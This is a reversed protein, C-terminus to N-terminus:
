RAPLRRGPVFHTLKVTLTGFRDPTEVLLPLRDADNSVWATVPRAEKGGVVTLTGEIRRAARTAFPASVVESAGIRGEVRWLRRRHYIEFCFRDGDDFARARMYYIVSLVDVLDSTSKLRAPRTHRRGDSWRYSLRGSVAPGRFAADERAVVDTQGLASVLFRNAMRVPTLTKPDLYSVMRGDLTGLVSLFGTTKAHAHLPYVPVHDMEGPAGIRVAVTGTRIGLLSVDYTLIEGPGFPVGAAPLPAVSCGGAVRLPAEASAPGEPRLLDPIPLLGPEGTREIEAAGAPAGALLVGVLVFRGIALRPAM